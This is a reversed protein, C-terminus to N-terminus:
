DAMLYDFRIGSLVFVKKVGPLARLERLLSLYDSHDVHLNKCPEPYLCQRDKCVGYKLQKDCSPHRFDATPGGVDHIYGKFDPDKTM